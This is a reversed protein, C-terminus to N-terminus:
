GQMLRIESKYSACIKDKKMDMFFSQREPRCGIYVSIIM